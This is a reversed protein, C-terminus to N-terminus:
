KPGAPSPTAPQPLPAPLTLLNRVASIGPEFLVLREALARDRESAVAGRITATQGEVSVEVPSTLRLSHCAQVQRTLGASLAQTDRQPPAFGVEVRPYYLDNAKRLPLMQNVRTNFRLGLGLGLANSAAAGAGEPTQQAGVFETADGSDTGVFSGAGHQRQIAWNAQGMPTSGPANSATQGTKAAASQAATGSSFLNSQRGSPIGGGMTRNPATGQAATNSGFQAQVSAAALTAVAAMVLSALSGIRTQLFQASIRM